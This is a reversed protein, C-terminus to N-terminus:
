HIFQGTVICNQQHQSTPPTPFEAHNHNLTLHKVQMVRLQKSALTLMFSFLILILFKLLNEKGTKM